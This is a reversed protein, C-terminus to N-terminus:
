LIRQADIQDTTPKDKVSPNHLSTNLMIIAFSVVYCSEADVFVSTNCECYRQAFCDMM